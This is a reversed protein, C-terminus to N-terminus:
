ILWVKEAARRTNGKGYGLDRGVDVSGGDQERELQNDVM